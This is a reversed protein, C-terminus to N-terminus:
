YVLSLSPDVVPGLIEWTEQADLHGAFGRIFGVNKGNSINDIWSHALAVPFLGLVAVLRTFHGITM